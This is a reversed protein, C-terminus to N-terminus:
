YKRRQQANGIGLLGRYKAITRRACQIGRAKMQAALDEDSLPHAKDENGILEQLIDRVTKSSMDGGEQVEIANTFFSRLPLLGRPTEIYKNAVARAVTSEHLELEEAIAKMTLPILKGEPNIFFERQRRALSQAIRELTDNRQWLNKLLWKASMIKQKIFDKTEVPVSEDDLMRMYKRNLKLSPLSEDNVSVLLQDDEQRIFVDPVAHAVVQSTLQAGPHLDLKAIHHDVMESIEELSCHLKRKIMPVRNHLLDDFHKDIIAYALTDQKNQARLQILLSEKLDRAGVGVPHFTQIVALIEELKAVTCKHMAAIEQLPTSLFGSSDLSGIIAEALLLDRQDDFVEKAQQMLHGFLHEEAVISSELFTQRKDDDATRPPPLDQSESFHDRFDEDLRRLIEFDHESFALAEEPRAEDGADDELSDEQLAQEAIDAPEEQEELYELVPNQEMEMDIAPALEMVPMQLLHIAQQMQRSMILRQMQKLTQAPKPQLNMSMSYSM